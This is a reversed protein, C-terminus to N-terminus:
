ENLSFMAPLWQLKLQQGPRGCIAIVDFRAQLPKLQPRTQLFVQAAKILRQRKHQTISTLPGGYAQSRRYKVEVFALKEQRQAVIDLEGGRCHFNRALIHWGQQRIHQCAIEEAWDGITKNDHM